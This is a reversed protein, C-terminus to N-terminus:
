RGGSRRVEGATKLSRAKMPAFLKSKRPLSFLGRKHVQPRRRGGANECRSTPDSFAAKKKLRYVEQLSSMKVPGNCGCM